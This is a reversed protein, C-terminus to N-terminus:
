EQVDRSLHQRRFHDKRWVNSRTTTLDEPDLNITSLRCGHENLKEEIKQAVFLGDDKKQCANHILDKFDM